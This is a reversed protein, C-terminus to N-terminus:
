FQKNKLSDYLTMFHEYTKPIFEINKIATYFNCLRTNVVRFLMIFELDNKYTDKYNDSLNDYANKIIDIQEDTFTTQPSFAFPMKTYYMSNFTSNVNMLSYKDVVNTRINGDMIYLDGISYVQTPNHFIKFLIDM